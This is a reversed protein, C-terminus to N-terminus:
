QPYIFINKSLNIFDYEDAKHLTLLKSEDAIIYEIFEDIPFLVADKLQFPTGCQSCDAKFNNKQLFEILDQHHKAMYTQNLYEIYDIRM